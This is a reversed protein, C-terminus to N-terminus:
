VQRGRRAGRAHDPRRMAPLRRAAPPELGLLHLGPLPRLLLVGQGARQAEGGDAGRQCIPCPVGVLQPISRKYRCAPFGSCAVFPGFRSTRILLEKGCEPCAEGLNEPEPKDLSIHAVEREAREIEQEFPGYFEGLVGAGNASARPSM